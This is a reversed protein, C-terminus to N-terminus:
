TCGRRESTPDEDSYGWADTAGVPVLGPERRRDAITGTATRVTSRGIAAPSSHCAPKRAAAQVPPASCRVREAVSSRARRAATRAVALYIHDFGRSAYYDQERVTFVFPQGCARCTLTSDTSM